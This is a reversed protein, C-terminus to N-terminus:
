CCCRGAAVRPLCRQKFGPLAQESLSYRSGALSRTTGTPTTPTPPWVWVLWADSPPNSGIGTRGCSLKTTSARQCCRPSASHSRLWISTWAPGPTAQLPKCTKAQLLTPPGRTPHAHAAWASTLCARPNKWGAASSAVRGICSSAAAWRSSERPLCQPLWPTAPLAMCMAGMSSCDCPNTGTSGPAM